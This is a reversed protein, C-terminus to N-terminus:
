EGGPTLLVVGPYPRQVKIKGQAALTMVRYYLRNNDIGTMKALDILRIRKAEIVIKEITQFEQENVKPM